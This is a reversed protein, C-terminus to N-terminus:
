QHSVARRDHLLVRAAYGYTSGREMDLTDCLSWPMLDSCHTMRGLMKEAPFEQPEYNVDVSATDPMDAEVWDEFAERLHGPYHM